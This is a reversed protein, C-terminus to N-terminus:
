KQTKKREKIKNHKKAQRRIKRKIGETENKKM